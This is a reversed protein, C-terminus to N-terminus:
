KAVPPLRGIKTSIRSIALVAAGLGFLFGLPFSFAGGLLGLCFVATYNKRKAFFVAFLLLIFSVANVDMYGPFIKLPTLMNLAFYVIVAAIDLYLLNLMTADDNKLLNFPFLAGSYEKTM